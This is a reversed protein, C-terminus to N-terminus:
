RPLVKVSLAKIGDMRTKIWNNESTPMGEPPVGWNNAINVDSLYGLARQIKSFPYEHGLYKM